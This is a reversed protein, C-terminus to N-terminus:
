FKVNVPTTVCNNLSGNMDRVCSQVNLTQTSNKFNSFDGTWVIHVLTYPNAGKTVGGSAAVTPTATGTAPAPVTVQPSIELNPDEVQIYFDVAKPTGTVGNPVVVLAPQRVDLVNWNATVTTSNGRKDVVTMSWNMHVCLHDNWNKDSCISNFHGATVAGFGPTYTIQFKTPDSTPKISLGDPLNTVSPFFPGTPTDQSGVQFVGTYTQGELVQASPDFGQITLNSAQHTVNITFSRTIEVVPTDTSSLKLNVTWTRFNDTPNAPDTADGRKPQCTVTATVPDYASCFPPLSADFSLVPKGPAPVHGVIKIQIAAGETIRVSETVEVDYGTPVSPKHVVPDPTVRETHGAYPNSHCAALLALAGAASILKLKM